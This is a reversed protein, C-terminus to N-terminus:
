DVQIGAERILKGYRRTETAILSEFDAATGSLPEAGEQHFAEKLRPSEMSTSLATGLTKLVDAPTGAPAMLGYALTSEYGAIGAEAM